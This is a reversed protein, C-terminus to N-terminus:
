GFLTWTIQLLIEAQFNNQTNASGLQDGAPASDSIDQSSKNATYTTSSLKFLLRPYAPQATHAPTEAQPHEQLRFLASISLENILKDM